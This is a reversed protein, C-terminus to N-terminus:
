KNAALRQTRSIAQVSNTRSRERSQQKSSKQLYFSSKKLSRTQNEYKIGCCACLKAFFRIICHADELLVSDSSNLRQIQRELNLVYDELDSLRRELHVIDM